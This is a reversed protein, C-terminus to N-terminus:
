VSEGQVRKSDSVTDNKKRQRSGYIFASVLGVLTGTALATGSAEHGKMICLSALVIIIAAITFALWLGTHSNKIESNLAKIELTRRHAVESQFIELFIKASGPVIEEYRALEEAPPL